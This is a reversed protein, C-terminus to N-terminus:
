RIESGIQGTSIGERNARSRDINIVIEPNSDELDSRLEEIGGIGQQGIYAEVQKSLRILEPFDEGAVEISIPKGVPPGSQEKDVTIDAGPIGQVAKRIETLYEASTQKGTRDMFEIFAVTVKGKHSQPTVSRENQDGAGIAVNSIVSE